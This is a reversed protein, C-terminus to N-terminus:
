FHNYGPCLKETHASPPHRDFARKADSLLAEVSRSIDLANIRKIQLTGKAELGKVDWNFVEMHERLQHEAEEFSMILVKEEKLRSTLLRCAFFLREAAPTKGEVLISNGQPNM